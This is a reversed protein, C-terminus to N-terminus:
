LSPFFLHLYWDSASQGGLYFLIAGLALYPGFPIATKMNQRRIWIQTLGVATGVLSAVLIVFPLSQFGLVAGIWALLKVDGGGMGEEKRYWQYLLGLFWLVGGGLFVGLVAELPSRSDSLFSGLVGLVIGPLTFVDPLIMHDFDIFSVTVLGFSLILLEILDWSWGYKMYVALFLGGMILEVLAYRYSIATGCKSCRGRLFIWSFVPILEWWSLTKSCKPCHSRPKVISKGEPLRLIVVNAFSGFCLGTLFFYLEFM